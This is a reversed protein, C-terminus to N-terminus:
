PAKKVQTIGAITELTHQTEKSMDFISAHLECLPTQIEYAEKVLFNDSLSGGWPFMTRLMYADGNKECGFVGCLIRTRPEELEAIDAAFDKVAQEIIRDVSQRSKKSYQVLIAPVRVVVTQKGSGLKEPM